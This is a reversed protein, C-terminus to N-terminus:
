NDRCYRHAPQNPQHTLLLSIIYMHVLSRVPQTQSKTQWFLVDKGAHEGGDLRELMVAFPKAAFHGCLWLPATAADFGQHPDGTLTTRERNDYSQAAPLSKKSHSGYTGVVDQLVPPVVSLHVCRMCVSLCVGCAEHTLM